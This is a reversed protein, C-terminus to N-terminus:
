VLWTALGAPCPCAARHPFPSSSVGGEVEEEGAEEEQGEGKEECKKAEKKEERQVLTGRHVLLPM